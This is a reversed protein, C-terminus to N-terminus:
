FLLTVVRILYVCILLTCQRMVIQLFNKMDFWLDINAVQQLNDCRVDENVSPLCDTFMTVSDFSEDDVDDNMSDSSQLGVFDNMREAVSEDRCM